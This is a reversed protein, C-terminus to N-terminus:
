PCRILRDLRAPVLVQHVTSITEIGSEAPPAARFSSAMLRLWGTFISAGAAQFSHVVLPEGSAAAWNKSRTPDHVSPV